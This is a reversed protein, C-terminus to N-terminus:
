GCSGQMGMPCPVFKALRAYPEGEQGLPGERLSFRHTRVAAQVGSRESAERTERGFATTKAILLNVLGFAM